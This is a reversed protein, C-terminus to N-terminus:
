RGVRHTHWWTTRPAMSAEAWPTTGSTYSITPATSRAPPATPMASTAGTPLHRSAKGEIGKSLTGMWFSNEDLYLNEFTATQATGKVIVRVTDAATLNNADTVTVVYDDCETPTVECTMVGTPLEEITGTKLTTHKGNIWTVTYPATGSTLTAELIATGGENIEMDESAQIEPAPPAPPTVTMTFEVNKMDGDIDRLSVLQFYVKYTADNELEDFNLMTETNAVLTVKSESAKLEDATPAQEDAKKLM